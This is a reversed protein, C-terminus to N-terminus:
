FCHRKKTITGRETITLTADLQAKQAALKAELSAKEKLQEVKLKALDAEGAAAKVRERSLSSTIRSLKCSKASKHGVSAVSAIDRQYIPKSKRATSPVSLESGGCVIKDEQYEVARCVLEEVVAQPDLIWTEADHLEEDNSCLAQFEKHNELLQDGARNLQTLRLEILKSRKREKMYEAISNVKKKLNTKMSKRRDKITQLKDQSPVNAYNSWDM